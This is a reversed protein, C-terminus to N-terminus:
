RRVRRKGGSIGELAEESLEGLAEESLELAEESLEARAPPLQGTTASRNVPQTQHPMLNKRDM